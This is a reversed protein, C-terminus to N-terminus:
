AAAVESEKILTVLEDLGEAPLMGPQAFALEGKKFAMVTPISRIRFAAAIERQDDGFSGRRRPDFRHHHFRASIEDLADPQEVEILALLDGGAM